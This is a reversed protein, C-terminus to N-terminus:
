PGRAATDEYPLRAGQVKPVRPQFGDIPVGREDAMRQARVAHSEIGAGQAQSNDARSVGNKVGVDRDRRCWNQWTKYPDRGDKLKKDTFWDRLAYATREALDEPIKAGERWKEADAHSVTWGPVTYAIGYWVPWLTEDETESIVEREGIEWTTSSSVISRQAKIRKRCQEALAKTAFIDILFCGEYDYCEQLVWVKM